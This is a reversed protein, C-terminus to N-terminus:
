WLYELASKWSRTTRTEKVWSSPTDGGGEPPLSAEAELRLMAPLERPDVAPVDVTKLLYQSKPLIAVIPRRAKRADVASCDVLRATDDGNVEAAHLNGDAQQLCFMAEKVSSLSAMRRSPAFAGLMRRTAALLNKAKVM